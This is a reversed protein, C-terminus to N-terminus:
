NEGDSVYLTDDNVEIPEIKSKFHMVWMQVEDWSGFWFEQDYLEGDVEVLAVVMYELEDPLEDDDVEDRHYPGSNIKWVKM